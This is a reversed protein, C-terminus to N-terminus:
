IVLCIVFIYRIYSDCLYSICTQLGMTHKCRKRVRTINSAKASVLSVAEQNFNNSAAKKQQLKAQFHSLKHHKYSCASEDVLLLSLLCLASISNMIEEKAGFVINNSESQTLPFVSPSLISFAKQKKNKIFPFPRENILYFTFKRKEGKLCPVPNPM